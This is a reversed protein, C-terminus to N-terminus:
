FDGEERSVVQVVTTGRDVWMDVVKNRDDFVLDIPGFESEFSEAVEAKFVEDPRYDGNPRMFVVPVEVDTWETIQDVTVQHESYNRATFFVVTDGNAVHENVKSVVFENPTDNVTEARFKDWDVQQSGDVFRRRHSVNALTGDIDFVINM